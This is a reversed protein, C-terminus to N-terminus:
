SVNKKYKLIKPRQIKKEAWLGGCIRSLILGVELVYIEKLLCGNSYVVNEPGM